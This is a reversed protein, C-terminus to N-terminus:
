NNRDEEDSDEPELAVQEAEAIAQKLGQAAKLVEVNEEKNPM